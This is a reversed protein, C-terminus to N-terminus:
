VFSLRPPRRTNQHKVTAEDHAPKITTLQQSRRRREREREHREAAPPPKSGRRRLAKALRLWKTEIQKPLAGFFASSAGVDGRRRRRGAENLFDIEVGHL